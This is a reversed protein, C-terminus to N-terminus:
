FSIMASPQSRGHLQQSNFEPGEYSCDTSKVASGDRWGMLLRKYGAQYMHIYLFLGTQRGTEEGGRRVIL